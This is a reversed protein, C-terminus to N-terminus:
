MTPSTTTTSNIAPNRPNRYFCLPMASRRSEIRPAGGYPYDGALATADLCGIYKHRLRNRSGNVPAILRLLYRTTPFYTTPQITPTGTMTSAM